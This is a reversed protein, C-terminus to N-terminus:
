WALPDRVKPRENSFACFEITGDDNAELYEVCENHWKCDQADGDYNTFTRVYQEGKHIEEGCWICRYTKRAVPMKVSVRSLSM